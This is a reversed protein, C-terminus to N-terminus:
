FSALTNSRWSKVFWRISRVVPVIACGRSDQVSPSPGNPKPLLIAVISKRWTGTCFRSGNTGGGRQSRSIKRTRSLFYGQYLVLRQGTWLSRGAQIPTGVCSLCKQDSGIVAIRIIVVVIGIIGIVSNNNNNRLSSSHQPLPVM